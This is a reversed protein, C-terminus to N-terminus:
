DSPSTYYNWFTNTLMKDGTALRFICNSIEEKLYLYNPFDGVIEEELYFRMTSTVVREVLKACKEIDRVVLVGNAVGTQLSVQIGLPHKESLLLARRDYTKSIIDFLKEKAEELHFTSRDSLWKQIERDEWALNPNYEKIKDLVLDRESKGHYLDRLNDILDDVYKKDVFPVFAIVTKGQALTSALESDKGLTDSEQVFYVTCKANKLMLAEFLGKDIRKDCFAQTPDFWRLKLRELCPQNFIESVWKNVMFYEEKKRMSTAIYVDLHDSALYSFYNQKGLEVIKQSYDFEEKIKEDNPHAQYAKSLEDQILHGLYFTDKGSIEQIPHIPDHRGVFHSDSEPELFILISNILDSNVSLREFATRINGFFLLADARFRDISERLQDINEFFMDDKIQVSDDLLFQFFTRNIRNFGLSLQMENFQSFGIGNSPFQNIVQSNMRLPAKYGNLKEFLEVLDNQSSTM